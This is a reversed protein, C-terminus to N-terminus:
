FKTGVQKGSVIELIVDKKHANAIITQIGNNASEFGVLVKSNMGGTGVSSKEGFHIKANQELKTIVKGDSNLVGNVNTLLILTDAKIFKAIHGSLKDNDSSLFFAKMEEDNVADNANVIQIGHKLGGVLPTNPSKLDEESILVQGVNINYREFARSWAGLLLNQGYIAAVQSSPKTKRLSLVTRGCAVAGSSVILIEVGLKYLLSAQRAVSRVVGLNLKGNNTISSSGIKIVIRKTKM